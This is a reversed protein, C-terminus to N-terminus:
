ETRALTVITDCCDVIAKRHTVFILTSDPAYEVIRRVVNRETQEDLASTSEDFIMVPSRRLLARAICLRQAQGESLGGGLEGCMTNLGDPLHSVFDASAVHLVQEMEAETAVPNGMLLNDRITGSLLTNGQPVYAFVRRDSATIPADGITVRGASPAVLALLLRILTTKGAGTEGVIATSSGPAFVHSFHTIVDRASATYRFSVDDFRIMPAAAAPTAATKMEASETDRRDFSPTEELPVSELEMLRESATFATIFVPVFRTLTRIPHQIQGVLQVFATLAGYTIIGAELNKVGWVFTVLYGIGFGANMVLQSISGYWTKEVVKRRLMTHSTVLRQTVYGVRELTKVVLSHQLSEQVRSQVESELSRVDHTLARLRRIYIKSFLVFVPAICIVIVALRSDMLYMFYFAGVLQLLTTFLSPIDETLLNVVVGVDQMIRNVVDGTHYRRMALWDCGLLRSFLREQMRNRAKIGLVARVWRSSFGLLIQTVMIGVLMCIATDINGTESRTAIDVTKKTAWVFALSAAVYATGLLVNIVIQLWYGVSRAALWAVIEKYTRLKSMPKGIHFNTIILVIFPVNREVDVFIAVCAVPAM